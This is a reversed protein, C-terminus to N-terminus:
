LIIIIYKYRRPTSFLSIRGGNGYMRLAHDYIINYTGLYIYYSDRWITDFFLGVVDPRTRRNTIIINYAHGSIYIYYIMIFFYQIATCSFDNIAMARTPRGITAGIYYYTGMRVRRTM